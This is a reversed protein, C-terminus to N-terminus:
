LSESSSATGSVVDSCFKGFVELEFVLYWFSSLVVRVYPLKWCFKFADIRLICIPGRLVFTSVPKCLMLMPEKGKDGDVRDSLEVEEM